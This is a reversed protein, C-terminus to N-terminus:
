VAENRRRPKRGPSIAEAKRNSNGKRQQQLDINPLLETERFPLRQNDNTDPQEEQKRQEDRTEALIKGSRTSRVM